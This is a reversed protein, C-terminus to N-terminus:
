NNNTKKGDCDKSFSWKGSSSCTATKGKTANNKACRWTQKGPPFMTSGTPCFKRVFDMDYVTLGNLNYLSRCTCYAKGTDGTSPTTDIGVCKENKSSYKGGLAKCVAVMDTVQDCSKKKPNYEGGLSQCVAKLDTSTDCSKSKPDYTGGLSQCVSKVDTTNECEGKNKNYAGGLLKCFTAMSSDDTANVSFCDEIRNNDVVIFMSALARRYSGPGTVSKQATFEGVINVRRVAKGNLTYANEADYLYVHDAKLAYGKLKTSKKGNPNLQITEGNTLTFPIELGPRTSKTTSKQSASKNNYKPFTAKKGAQIGLADQCGQHSAIRNQVDFILANLDQKAEITNSTRMMNGIVAATGATIVGMVGLVVLMEVLSMGKAHSTM